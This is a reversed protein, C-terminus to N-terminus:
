ELNGQCVARDRHERLADLVPPFYYFGFVYGAGSEERDRRKENAKLLGLYHWLASIWDFLVFGQKGFQLALKFRIRVETSQCSGVSMKQAHVRPRFDQEM